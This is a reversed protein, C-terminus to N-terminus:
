PMREFVWFGGAFMHTIKGTRDMRFAIKGGGDERIFLLPELEIWRKAGSLEFLLRLDVFQLKDSM